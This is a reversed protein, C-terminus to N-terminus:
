TQREGEKEGGNQSLYVSHEQSAEFKHYIEQRLRRLASTMMSPLIEKLSTQAPRLSKATKLVLHNPQPRGEGALSYAVRVSLIKPAESAWM